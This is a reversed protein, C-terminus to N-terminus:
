SLATRRTRYKPLAPNPLENHNTIVGGQARKSENNKKKKSRENNKNKNNNMKM